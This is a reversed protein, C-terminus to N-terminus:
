EFPNLLLGQTLMTSICSVAQPHVRCESYPLNTHTIAEYIRQIGGGDIPSAPGIDHHLLINVM